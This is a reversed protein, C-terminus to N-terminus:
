NLMGNVSLCEGLAHFEIAVHLELGGGSSVLTCTMVLMILSKHDFRFSSYYRSVLDPVQFMKHSSSLTTLM